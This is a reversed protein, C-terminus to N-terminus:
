NLERKLPYGVALMTEGCIEEICQLNASGFFQELSVQTNGKPQFQVDKVHNIDQKVQLDLQTALQYISSVKNQNFAEYYVPVLEAQQQCYLQLVRQCRLALTEIYTKGKHGTLSGELVPYWGPFQQKLTQWQEPSLDDLNGPLKLRNLISRINHRPDRLVFIRKSSPFRSAIEDYFFTFGPDKIIHKSFYYQGRNIVEDFSSEGNLLREELGQYLCFIDITYSLGTAEGLLAAIASTGAKQNGFVFIPNPNIHATQRRWSEQLRYRLNAFSRSPNELFHKFPTATAM